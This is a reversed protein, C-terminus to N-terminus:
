LITLYKYTELFHNLIVLNEIIKISECTKFCDNHFRKPTRRIINLLGNYTYFLAGATHPVQLIGPMCLVVCITLLSFINDIHLTYLCSNVVAPQPNSM